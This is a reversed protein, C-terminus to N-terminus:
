APATRRLLVRRGPDHSGTLCTFRRQQQEIHDIQQLTIADGISDDAGHCGGHMTDDTGAHIRIGHDQQWGMTCRIKFSFAASGSENGFYSMAVRIIGDTRHKRQTILKAIPNIQQQPQASQTCVGVRPGDLNRKLIAMKPNNAAFVKDGHLEKRMTRLVENVSFM